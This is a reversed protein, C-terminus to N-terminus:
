SREREKTTRIPRKWEDNQDTKKNTQAVPTRLTFKVPSRVVLATPRV